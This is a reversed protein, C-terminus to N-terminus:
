AWRRHLPFAPLSEIQQKNLKLFVVEGQTDGLASVPIIVDKQGWLHGERMVLHTIHGNKPNVVFEDVHGVYGDTAEVRTGRYVALEGPPIQKHEVPVKVTMEPDVYPLYYYAGRGYMESSGGLSTYPVKEEIFTTKIFLHMKKLRAKKFRLRITGAITETVFEVPVIYETDSDAEKVVLDTVQDTVPNILVYV